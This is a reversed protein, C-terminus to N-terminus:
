RRYFLRPPRTSATKRCIEIDVRAVTLGALPEAGDTLSESRLAGGDGKNFADADSRVTEIPAALIPM